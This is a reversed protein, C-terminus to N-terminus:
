GFRARRRVVDREDGGVECLGTQADGEVRGPVVPFYRFRGRDLSGAKIESELSM